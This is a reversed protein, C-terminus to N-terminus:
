CVLGRWGACWSQMMMMMMQRSAVLPPKDGECLQQDHQPRMLLEAAGFIARGPVARHAAGAAPTPLRAAASVLYLILGDARGPNSLKSLNNLLDAPAKYVAPPVGSVFNFLPLHIFWEAFFFAFVAAVSYGIVAPKNDSAEFQPQLLPMM